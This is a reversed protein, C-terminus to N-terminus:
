NCEPTSVEYEVAVQELVENGSGIKINKWQEITGGFSVKNLNTCGSFAGKQIVTVSSPIHITEMKSYNAFAEEGIETIEATGYSEMVYRPKIIIYKYQDKNDDDWLGCVRYNSSGEKILEFDIDATTADEVEGNKLFPIGVLLIVLICVAGIIIKKVM